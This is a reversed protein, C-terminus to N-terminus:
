PRGGFQTMLSQLQQGVQSEEPVHGHPTLQDILSPLLRALHQTATEPPVGAREALRHVTDTGLAQTLQDSSIPLNDGTGVWSSVLDELGKQQFLAVLGSLGQGGGQLWSVAAHAVPSASPGASDTASGQQLASLIQDLMM